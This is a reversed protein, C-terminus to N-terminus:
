REVVDVHAEDAYVTAFLCGLRQDTPVFGGYVAGASACRPNRVAPLPGCRRCRSACQANRDDRADDGNKNKAASCIWWVFVRAVDHTLREVLREVIPHSVYYLSLWASIESYLSLGMLHIYWTQETPLNPLVRVAEDRFCSCALASGSEVIRLMSTCEGNRNPLTRGRSVRCDRLIWLLQHIAAEHTHWSNVLQLAHDTGVHRVLQKFETCCIAAASTCGVVKSTQDAWLCCCCSASKCVFLSSRFHLFHERWCALPVAVFENENLDREQRRRLVLLLIM